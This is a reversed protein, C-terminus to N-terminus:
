YILHKDISVAEKLAALEEACRVSNWPFLDYIDLALALARHPNDGLNTRRLLLDDLHLVSEENILKRLDEKWKGNSLAPKWDFDFIGVMNLLNPPCDKLMQAPKVKVNGQRSILNLTKEAILRSTTFKIGSVSYLGRPGGHRAHDIIVERTTLKLGGTETVPLFGTFIKLVDNFELNLDPIASNIDQIFSALQRMSVRPENPADNWSAHGTGALLMGKWPLIFYTQGHDKDPCIALAYDSSAKRNFLANWALSPRLLQPIDRDFRNALFRSHPGTANIVIKAKFEYTRGDEIDVAIVGAVHQKSETLKQVRVYNLATGGLECAWRIAELVIRHSDPMYADYWVASGQLGSTKVGPFIEQTQEANLIRGPPIYGDPLLAYNRNWSLIDNAVLAIRLVTCRRLGTGYLPMLCPLPKVLEPFARLFWHREQVSERFRHFDLSQLCRLGGHLIRLSNSSTGAGFDSGELLLAKLGRRSAELLLMVGYVGGGIIILNYATRAAIEPHRTIAAL